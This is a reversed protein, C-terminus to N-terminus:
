LADIKEEKGKKGTVAPAAEAEAVPAPAAAVPAAAAEPASTIGLLDAAAAKALETGLNGGYQASLSAAQDFKSMDPVVNGNTTIILSGTKGVFRTTFWLAKGTDSDERFFEGQAEQYAEMSAEDGSVGYVFTANGKKSTYSRISNINLGM